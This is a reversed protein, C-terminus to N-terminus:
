RDPTLHLNAYPGVSAMVVWQRQSWYFGSQNQYWSVRTIESLGSPRLISTHTHTHTHTHQLVTLRPVIWAVIQSLSEADTRVDQWSDCAGDVYQMASGLISRLQISSKIELEVFGVFFYTTMTHPHLTIHLPQFYRISATVSAHAATKAAM